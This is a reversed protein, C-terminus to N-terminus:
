TRFFMEAALGTEPDALDVRLVSWQGERLEEHGQYALREGVNSQIYRENAMWRGHGAVYVEVLPPRGATSPPAGAPADPGLGVIRARGEADIGFEVRLADHGWSFTSLGEFM